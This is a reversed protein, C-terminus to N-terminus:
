MTNRANGCNDLETVVYYAIRRTKDSCNDSQHEFMLHDELYLAFNSSWSIYTLRGVNIKLDFMPDYQIM